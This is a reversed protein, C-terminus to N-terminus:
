AKGSFRRRLTGSFGLLVTGLLVLSGPEPVTGVTLSTSVPGELSFFGTGGGGAIGGAFNVTGSTAGGNVGSTSVGSPLYGSGGACNPGSADFTYGPAGCVGDGDFAFIPFTPNNLFLSSISHSTNNVIGVENDDGGSDYSPATNPNTTTISGNSNFTILVNCGENAGGGLNGSYVSSVGEGGSSGGTLIACAQVGSAFVPSAAVLLLAFAFCLLSKSMRFGGHDNSHVNIREALNPV